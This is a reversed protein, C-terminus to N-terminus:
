DSTRASELLRAVADADQAYADPLAHWDDHRAHWAVRAARGSRVVEVADVDRWLVRHPRFFTAYAFGESDVRLWACQPLSLVAFFLAVALSAYTMAHGIDPEEVALRTGGWAPLLFLVAVLATRVAPPRLVVPLAPTDRM